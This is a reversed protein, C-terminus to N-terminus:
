KTTASINEFTNLAANHFNKPKTANYNVEKWKPHGNQELYAKNKVLIKIVAEIVKDNKGEAINTVLVSTTAYVGVPNSLWNYDNNTFTTKNYLGNMILNDKLEIFEIGELAKFIKSPKGIISLTLDLKDEKMMSIATEFTIDHNYRFKVGYAQEIYKATICSGSEKKGCSVSYEKDKVLEIKRGSKSILHIEESYLPLVTKIIDKANTNFNKLMFYNYYNIADQQVIGFSVDKQNTLGYLIDLNQISGETVMPEFEIKYKLFLDSMDKGIQYYTGVNSGTALKGFNAGFLGVSILVVYLVMKFM